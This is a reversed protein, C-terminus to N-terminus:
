KKDFILYLLYIFIACGFTDLIVDWFSAYRGPVFYQHIEDCAALFMVLLVNVLYFKGFGIKKLHSRKISPKDHSFVSVKDASKEVADSYATATKDSDIEIRLEGLLPLYGGCFFCGLIGYEVFHALKRLPHEFYNALSMVDSLTHERKFSLFFGAINKAISMSLTGSSDADQASFRCVVFFYFIFGLIPSAVCIIKKYLKAEKFARIYRKM